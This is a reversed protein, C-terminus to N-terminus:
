GRRGPSDIYRQAHELSGMPADMRRPRNARATPPALCSPHIDTRVGTVPRTGPKLSAVLAQNPSANAPGVGACASAHAAMPRPSFVSTIAGVPDPFVSAANRHAISLSAVSGTGASGCCRQRTSYMEGSFARATSMSRLRREGSAPTPWAALRRPRASGSMRTPTRVPSVAASSRRLSAPWGGSMRIVVGSDSNRSSVEWALSVRRLTSVTITSSTCASAPPLRPACRARDSSRRSAKRSSVRSSAAPGASRPGACRIPSDAVTRGGSSTAANRPPLRGTVIAAGGLSLRSSRCITTGTSSM